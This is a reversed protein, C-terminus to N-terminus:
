SKHESEFACIASALAEPTPKLATVDAEWCPQGTAVAHEHLAAATTTGIAAKRISQWPLPLRDKAVDVGSPSFFVIWQPVQCEVPLAVNSVACTEYVILEELPLGRSRFSDPLVNRRKDGCLFVMPRETCTAPLGGDRHLSAALADASGAADGKCVVGLPLLARSTAAGVSFVPVSQLATLVLRQHEADLGNVATAVALASRPSTVLLGSYREVHTLVDVLQPTNVYAFTLVETFYVRVSQHSPSSGARRELARRYKDDPAKLLLVSM